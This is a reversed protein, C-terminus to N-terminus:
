NAPKLKHWNEFARLIKAYIRSGVTEFRRGVKVWCIFVMVAIASNFTIQWFALSTFDPYSDPSSLLSDLKSDVESMRYISFIACIVAILIVVIDLINWFTKFYALRVKKIQLRRTLLYTLLYTLKNFCVHCVCMRVLFMYTLLYLQAYLNGFLM